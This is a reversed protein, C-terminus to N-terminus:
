GGPWRHAEFAADLPADTLRNAYTSLTYTAVGVVVDLAERAGFGALLLAQEAESGVAGRTELVRLVFRRLAELRPSPLATGERLAGVLPAGEATGALMASHMAMCYHCGNFRAVTLALVERELPGLSSRDFLGLLKGFAEVATPSAAMRALPSPIFGFQRQAHALAPGAGTPATDPTLTSFM